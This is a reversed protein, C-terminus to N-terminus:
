RILTTQGKRIKEEGDLFTGVLYYMYIGSMVPQGRFTGDWGFNRDNVEFDKAEYLLEGWRNYIQFLKVRTGARGHVLLKDNQKDGNPSFGTPVALVRPKFVNIIIEDSAQCGNEDVGSLEYTTTYFPRAWALQCDTCSIADGFSPKWKFDVEGIGNLRDALLLISDGLNITYEEPGAEVRFQPPENITVLDILSTCNRADQVYVEYSGSTLRSFTSSTGFPDSNLRYQYPATGGLPTVVILGNRDGFCRIDQTELDAELPPPESVTALASQECGNADTVRLEYDGATVGSIRDTTVGNIWVYTYGPTGGAVTSRIAGESDGNCQNDTVAFTIEMGQPENLLITDLTLCRLSDSVSVYYTGAELDTVAATTQGGANDSWQFQYRGSGGRIDVLMISGDDGGFCNPDTSEASFTIPDPYALFRTEIGQCGDVDTVTVSYETNGALNEIIATTAGTNWLFQYDDPDSSTGGAIFNVGLRGNNEGECSPSDAIINPDIAPKDEAKFSATTECGNFDTVTVTYEISDLGVATMTRQEGPWLYNYPAEGGAGAAALENESAGSCGQKTQRITASVATAPQQLSAQGEITCGNEDTVVVSYTGESLDVAKATAQQDSWNYRYPPLGGEVLAEATGDSGEFCNVDTSLVQLALPEPETVTVSERASCGTEDYVRVMYTGARLRGATSMVQALSDDWLYTFNGSGGTVVVTASGDQAGFCSAPQASVSDIEFSCPEYICTASSVAPLCSEAGNPRVELRVEDNLGLNSRIYETQSTVFERVLAGNIYLDVQYAPVDAMPDWTFTIENEDTVGCSVTTPQIDRLVGVSVSDRFTCGLDDSAEVYYTTSASPAAVQDPCDLCSLDPSPDWRYRVTNSPTFTISWSEFINDPIGFPPPLQSRRDYVEIFWTGNIPAGDFITFSGEPLYNGFFPATGNRISRTATPTFCTNTYNDDNGGNQNSLLLRRGDPSVLYMEIDQAYATEINLCVSEIQQLPNSLTGPSVFSVTIGTRYPSLLTTSRSFVAGPRATFTLAEYEIFDPQINLSVSEGQCIVTDQLQKVNESCDYCNPHFPPLVEFTVTTDSVCGFEDTVSFTYGVEGATPAILSISDPQAYIIDPSAQWSYDVIQPSFRELDPFLSRDFDIGWSFIYGNDRPWLDLVKIKWEGNLPCGRLQEFSQYPRYDGEPLKPPTYRNAYNTWTTQTTSSTWCYDGGEGPVPETTDFDNPNGLYVEGGNRGAYEHLIISDGSPCILAIQLDRMWSHEINVCVSQIDSANEVRQGPKFDRIEISSEYPINIGDPLALTDARSAPQYFIGEGPTVGLSVGAHMQGIIANLQVTDEVCVETPINDGLAFNPKPAVRVRQNIFNTNKCGRNDEITLQIVYGGPEEYRHAVDLGVASTSDGFNWTFSSNQDSHNYLAGNQPYVGRGSLRVVDGPCIDIWGTDVPMVAPAANSLEAIITQCAQICNIEAEWGDGTDSPSSQFTVTLCGSNNVATAQVIFPEGPMFEDSCALQSANTSQGDYFCLRDGAKLDTASFVLQIFKDPMDEGPCITITYNENNGYQGDAGGSDTFLGDCANINTGDLVFVDQSQLAQSQFAIMVTM